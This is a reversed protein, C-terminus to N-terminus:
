GLDRGRNNVGDHMARYFEGATAPYEGRQAITQAPAPGQTAAAVGAGASALVGALVLRGLTGTIRMREIRM